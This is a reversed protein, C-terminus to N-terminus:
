ASDVRDAIKGLDRASFVAKTNVLTGDGREQSIEAIVSVIGTM